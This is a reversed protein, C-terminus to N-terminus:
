RKPRSRTKSKPIDALRRFEKLVVGALSPPFVLEGAHVKRIGEAVEAPSATKVLYGTAGAAVADLVDKQEDSSSLILVRTQPLEALIGRAADPGNLTPLNMDMVIVDPRAALAMEIAEPGDSAEAVVTAPCSHEVVKRLTERWMPHDDVLMISFVSSPRRRSPSVVAGGRSASFLRWTGPVGRLAHFGRDEFSLTSGTVLDRVTSTTLVERPGALGLLRACIHVTIGGVDDERRECEGIHVGARIQLDLPELAAGLRLASGIADAPRPFTAFISDGFSNVVHGECEEITAHALADHRDLLERWRRDGLAAARETSGVIDTFLVTALFRDSKKGGRDRRVPDGTTWDIGESVYSCYTGTRVAKSLHDSLEPDHKGISRLASTIANRVNVRARETASGAKRSRGGLGFASALERELADVEDRASAAREPDNFREAEDIEERLDDLRKKYASRAEPDLIEGADGASAATLGEERVARAAPSRDRPIRDVTLDLALLDRGPNALLTALYRLGKSDRVRFEPGRYSITWYDGDRRFTGGSM